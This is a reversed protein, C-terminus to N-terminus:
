LYYKVEEPKLLRIVRFKPHFDPPNKSSYKVRKRPIRGSYDMVLFAFPPPDSKEMEKKVVETLEHWYIM